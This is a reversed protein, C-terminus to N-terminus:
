NVYVIVSDSGGGGGVGGGGGNSGGESGGGGGCIHSSSIKKVCIRDVSLSDNTVQFNRVTAPTTVTM